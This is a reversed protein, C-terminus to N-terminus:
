MLSLLGEQNRLFGRQGNSVDEIINVGEFMNWSTQSIGEQDNFVNDVQPQCGFFTNRLMDVLCSRGVIKSFLEYTITLRQNNTM